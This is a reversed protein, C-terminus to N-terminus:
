LTYTALVRFEQNTVHVSPFDHYYGARDYRHWALGIGFRRWIDKVVEVSLIDIIETGRAGSQTRIWYRDAFATLSGMGPRGVNIGTKWGPGMGFNYDREVNVYYDTSAAGLLIFIPQARSRLTWNSGLEAEGLWEAGFSSASLRYLGGDIYDFNQSLHLSHRSNESEMEPLRWLQARVGVNSVPNSLVSLGLSLTFHEFPAKSEYPDGHALRLSTSAIPVAAEPASAPLDGQTRILGKGFSKGTVIRMGMLRSRKEPVVTRRPMGNIWRDMGYVPNVLFAASRRAWGAPKGKSEGSLDEALRWTMEGLMAGGMRTTVLDNMAPPETEMFYEWHISGASTWLLGGFYGFGNARAVSYYMAGQLPHGIQNVQFNDDDWVWEHALNNWITEGDIRAYDADRVYRNWSAMALNTAVIGGATYLSRHMFSSKTEPAFPVAISDVRIVSDTLRPPLRVSDTLDPVSTSDVGGQLSSCATLLIALM